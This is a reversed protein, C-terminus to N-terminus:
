MMIKSKDSDLDVLIDALISFIVEIADPDYLSKVYSCNISVCNDMIRVNFDVDFYPHTDSVGHTPKLLHEKMSAGEVVVVNMFVKSIEHLPTELEYILKEVPYIGHSYAELINQNVQSIVNIMDDKQNFESRVFVTNTLFGILDKVNETDRLMVNLAVVVDQTGTLRALIVKLIGIVAISLSTKARSAIYKLTTLHAQNLFYNYSSGKRHEVISVNGFLKAEEELSMQRYGGGKRLGARLQDCYSLKAKSSVQQAVATYINRVPLNQLKEQWFIQHSESGSQEFLQNSWNVYDKFQFPVEPLDVEKGQSLADYALMLEREIISLSWEDCIGHHITFLIHYLDGQVRLIKVDMLPGNQFDFLIPKSFIESIYNDIDVNEPIDEELITFFFSEAPQIKQKVEGDILVLVTRLIEHREILTGFAGKLAEVNLEKFVFKRDINFTFSIEENPNRFLTTLLTAKQSISAEYYAGEELPKLISVQTESDVILQSISKITPSSFVTMLDIKSEFEKNVQNNARFISMSNGGLDFFSDHIGIKDLKLKLVDSWIDAIKSQIENSPPTFDSAVDLDPQPLSKKDVKGNPTVPMSDVRVFYSPIMYKPLFESLHARLESSEFQKESLYYAMLDSDEKQRAVVVAEKIGEFKALYQEIEGLEIRFGRVKVQDDKRGLFDITGNPLWKALDGTRYLKSSLQFPNDVFKQATLDANNMYGSALGDGSICVEGPVGVPVLELTEDVIYVQTNAIPRGITVQSKDTLEEVTSWVTTESPGYMNYTRGSFHKNVTQLLSKQLPEGGLLLVEVEELCALEPDCELILRMRSPTCQITNVGSKRILFCIKSPDQQEADTCMIIEMGLALPLLTELVFIDFSITTMALVKAKRPFAIESRMAHIFNVLSRHKIQVGKPKGGSGSTYVVYALDGPLAINKFEENRDTGERASSPIVIEIQNDLLDEYKAETCVFNVGSDDLMYQIRSKPFSPDIPIYAAGVKFIAMITELLYISRDLLVGVLMKPKVGRATLVHAIRNINCDLVGYTLATDEVSIAPFSSQEIDKANHCFLDILTLNDPYASQTNNFDHFITNREDGSLVSIQSLLIKPNATVKDIIKELYGVFRKITSERFLGTAYEMSFYMKDNSEFASLTLDFKSVHNVYSYPKLSIGPLQLEKNEFNQFVFMVDFLPNRATNRHVKLQDVLEEYQYSKNDFSALTSLKVNQLFEDFAISGQPYNRLALTDVFMGLIKDLGEHDRGAVPTGVIIDNQGSLKSLFVNFIALTLMFLTVNKEECLVKLKSTDEKGVSFNINGGANDKIAQRPFDNPLDLLVIEDSFQDLWFQKQNELGSQHDASLQWEAYDKYQLEMPPLFQGEYLDSFDKILISQSLADSVIHHMDVMLIHSIESTRILGVRILPPRALDFPKVFEEIHIKTNSEDTEELNVDFDIQDHIRQVVQEETVEFSTRLIEHRDILKNCALGLRNADLRGEFRFVQPMNYATSKKDLQYLIYMRKQASSLGYVEKSEAPKIVVLKTEEIGELFTLIESKREKIGITAKKSLAGKLGKVRLEGDQINVSIGHMRRLEILYDIIEM